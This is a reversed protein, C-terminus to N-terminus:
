ETAEPKEVARRVALLLHQNSVFRQHRLFEGTGKATGAQDIFKRRSRSDVLDMAECIDRLEHQDALMCARLARTFALVNHPQEGVAHCQERLAGRSMGVGRALMELTRPDDSLLIGALIIKVVRAAAPPVFTM